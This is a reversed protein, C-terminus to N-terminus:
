RDVITEGSRQMKDSQGPPPRPNRANARLWARLLRCSASFEESGLDRHSGLAELLTIVEQSESRSAGIFLRDLAGLLQTRDSENM